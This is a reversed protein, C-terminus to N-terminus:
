LVTPLGRSLRHGIADRALSSPTRVVTTDAFEVDQFSIDVFHFGDYARPLGRVPQPNVMRYTSEYM